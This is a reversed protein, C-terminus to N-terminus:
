VLFLLLQLGVQFLLLLLSISQVALDFLLYGFFDGAGFGFGFSGAFPRGRASLFRKARSFAAAEPFFTGSVFGSVSGTRSSRTASVLPPYAM